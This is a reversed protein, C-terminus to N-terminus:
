EYVPGQGRLWRNIGKLMLALSKLAFWLLWVFFTAIVLETM